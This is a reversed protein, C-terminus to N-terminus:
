NGKKETIIKYYVRGNKQRSYLVLDDHISDEKLELLDEDFSAIGNVIYSNNVVANFICWAGFATKGVKKIQIKM